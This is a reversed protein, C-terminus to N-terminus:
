YMNYNNWAQEPTDGRAVETWRKLFWGRKLYEIAYYFGPRGYDRPQKTCRVDPRDLPNQVNSM